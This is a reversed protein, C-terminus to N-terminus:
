PAEVTRRWYWYEAPNWYANARMDHGGNWKVWSVHLDNFLHNSGAPLDARQKHALTTFQRPSSNIPYERIIDVMLAWTPPDTPKIPSCPPDAMSWRSAVGGIYNYNMEFVYGDGCNPAGKNQFNPIPDGLNPCSFVRLRMDPTNSVVDGVVYKSMVGLRVVEEWEHAVYSGLLTWVPQDDAYPCGTTPERQHPYRKYQEAYFSLALGCQRLNNICVTRKASEKARSLAPLLMSALIAIIAIVVLLEILTFGRASSPRKNTNM